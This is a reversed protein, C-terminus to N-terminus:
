RGAQIHRGMAALREAKPFLSNHFRVKRCVVWMHATIKQMQGHFLDWLGWEGFFIWALRVPIELPGSAWPIMAEKQLSVCPGEMFGNQNSGQGSVRWTARCM